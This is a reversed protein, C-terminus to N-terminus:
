LGCVPWCKPIRVGSLDNHAWRRFRGHHGDPNREGKGPPVREPRQERLRVRRGGGFNVSTGNSVSAVATSNTTVPISTQTGLRWRWVRRRITLLRDLRRDSHTTSLPADPYDSPSFTAPLPAGPLMILLVSGFVDSSVPFCSSLSSVSRGAPV